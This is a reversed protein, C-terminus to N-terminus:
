TKWVQPNSNVQSLYRFFIVFFIIRFYDKKVKFLM